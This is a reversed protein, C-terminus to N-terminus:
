VGRHNAPDRAVSRRIVLPPRGDNETDDFAVRKLHPPHAITIVLFDIGRRAKKRPVPAARAKGTSSAMVGAKATSAFRGIRMDNMSTGLPIMFRFPSNVGLVTPASKSSVGISWGSAGKRSRM